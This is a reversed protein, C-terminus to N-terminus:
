MTSPWSLVTSPLGANYLTVATWSAKSRGYRALAVGGQM